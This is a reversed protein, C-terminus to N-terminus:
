DVAYQNDDHFHDDDQWLQGRWVHFLRINFLYVGDVWLNLWFKYLITSNISFYSIHAKNFMNFATYQSSQYISKQIKYFISPGNLNITM